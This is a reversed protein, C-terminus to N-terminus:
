IPSDAGIILSDSVSGSCPKVLQYYILQEKTARAM